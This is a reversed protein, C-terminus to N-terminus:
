SGADADRKPWKFALDHKEPDRGSLALIRNAIGKVLDRERDNECFVLSDVVEAWCAGYVEDKM